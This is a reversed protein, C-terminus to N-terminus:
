TGDSTCACRAHLVLKTSVSPTACASVNKISEGADSDTEWKTEGTETHYLYSAGTQPDHTQRWQSEDDAGSSTLSMEKSGAGAAEAELHEDSWRTEGTESHYYYVKGTSDDEHKLWSMERKRKREKKKGRAKM